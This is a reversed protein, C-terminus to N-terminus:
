SMRRFISAGVQQYRHGDPLTEAAGIYLFGGVRTQNYMRAVLERKTANDFYIMVNRCFIIDFASKFPFKRNMLNFRRFLVENRLKPSAQHTGDKKDEFYKRVLDQPLAKLDPTPYVGKRAVELIKHSIDTALLGADWRPYEGGLTEMMLMALTYPEQGASSAACWVRLRRQGRGQSARISDPLSVNRYHAFHKNERNFFTHNTTICDVLESLLEDRRIGKFAQFYADFSPMNERELVAQLRGILFAKKEDGLDVGCTQKILDRLKQYESDSIQKRAPLQIASSM